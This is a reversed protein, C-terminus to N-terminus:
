AWNLLQLIEHAVEPLPRDNAVVVSTFGSQANEALLSETNSLDLQRDTTPSAALRHRIVEIPVSLKVVRLPMSMVRMLDELDIEDEATWALMFHDVGKATYNDILLALNAWLVEKAAAHDIGSVQFWWLYDLDLYAYAVDTRDLM